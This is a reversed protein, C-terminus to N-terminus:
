SYANGKEGGFINTVTKIVIRIDLWLSWNELYWIDKQIRQEMMWLESTEGRSGTVQAWGTIGPKAYHRVMYKDVLAGYEKTHKVMHPRPGVISMDGLFVNIFQPLEDINTKRMINGWKTKRPDDKTAQLKDADANVKMSRFKLCTFEKGLIGNRKQKFLVPGPMTIKSVLAVVLYLWWFFSILFLGSFVLDFTRKIFQNFPSQLPEQRVSLVPMDDVYQVAMAKHVYNKVNPVTYFRILHNECYNMISLIEASRTSPLNCFLMDVRNQKLYDEVENISGLRSLVDGLHNSIQEEFYGKINYGTYINNTMKDYVARLNVGAGVFVASMQNRGRNRNYRIFSRSLLRSLLMAVLLLVWNFLFWMFSFDLMDATLLIGFSASMLLSTNVTRSLLQEITVIRNQAVPPFFMFSLFYSFFWFIWCSKNNLEHEFHCIIYFVVCVFTADISFVIWRAKM